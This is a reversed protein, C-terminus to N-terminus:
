RGGSDFSRAWADTVITDAVWGRATAELTAHEYWADRPRELIEEIRDNVAGASREDIAKERQLEDIWRLNRRVVPNDWMATNMAPCLVNPIPPLAMWVTTLADDAIGCALKGLTSATLPAIVAVDAWKAWAIHDVSSGEASAALADVMVPHGTLAEFTLPGVFRVAHPTM